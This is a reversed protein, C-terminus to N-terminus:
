PLEELPIDLIPYKEWDPDDFHWWETPLGIFGAAEMADQLIKRNKKAEESCGQYDRHSEPGFHDFASPMELEKGDKDILTVDVAAGRNHRSGKAPNAVYREDPLIEWMKKQVSLPRYADLIKLSYRNERELRKEVRGLRTAVANRLYARSRSYLAQKAFNEPRAYRLETRFEDDVRVLGNPGPAFVYATGSGNHMWVKELDSRRYIRRGQEANSAAPDNAFFEDNESYGTLVLLHGNTSGYPAGQLEGPAARISIVLPLGQSLYYKVWGWDSFRHLHGPIGWTYAGQIARTWNGYIDHLPDYLRAAVEETAVSAGLFEMAMAVSTPSCIRGAIEKKEARQSRFPVGLRVAKAPVLDRPEVYDPPWPGRTRPIGTTDSVCLGVRTLYVFESEDRPPKEYIARVRWDLRDFRESSTFFDVDIKGGEFSTPSRKSIPFEGWDGVHLFPSWFQDFSRGVRLEVAIGAGRPVAANWSLLVENFCLQGFDLPDPSRVYVAESPTEADPKLFVGPAEEEPDWGVPKHLGGGFCGFAGTYIEGHHWPRLPPTKGQILVDVKSALASLYEGGKPHNVAGAILYESELGEVIATDLHWNEWLGNKRLVGVNRGNLGRVFDEDHYELSEALFIGRMRKSAQESHLRGKRLMEYFRLCQRMTVAHSLNRIPDGMRPEDEGYYKGTWIGGGHERDYLKYKPSELTERIFELGVIKAYKAAVENSSRKIMLQLERETAWDCKEATQPFKEFYALLIAIKPVSAAYFMTDGNVLALRGTKLDYVGCGRDSEPIGFKEGLERDITELQKQLEPDVSTSWELFRSEGPEQARLLPAAVFLAFVLLVARMKVLRFRWRRIGGSWRRM